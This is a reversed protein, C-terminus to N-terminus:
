LTRFLETANEARLCAENLLEALLNSRVEVASNYSYGWELRITYTNDSNRYDIISSTCRTERKDVARWADRIIRMGKKTCTFTLIFRNNAAEERVGVFESRLSSVKILRDIALSLGIRQQM